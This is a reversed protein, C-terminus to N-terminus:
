TFIYELAHISLGKEYLDSLLYKANEPWLRRTYEENQKDTEKIM